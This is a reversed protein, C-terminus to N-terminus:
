EFFLKIIVQFQRNTLDIEVNETVCFDRHKRQMIQLNSNRDSFM